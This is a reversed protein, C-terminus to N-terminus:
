RGPPQAFGYLGNEREWTRDRPARWPLIGLAILAPKYEYRLIVQAAAYRQPEFEVTHVRDRQNPGWGTGPNSEAVPERVPAPGDYGQAGVGNDSRRGSQPSAAAPPASKEMEKAEGAHWEDRDDIREDRGSERWRPTVGYLARQEDFATVRIWGLDGNAQGTREAYSRREDVFVFRSVNHLDKRWGKITADDHPDLVYMPEGSGGASRLGNIANLGDVALVFGVRRGTRNTVRIEYKAGQRAELYWRDTRNSAMFLPTNRGAVVVEVEIPGRAAEYSRDVVPTRAQAPAAVLTVALLAAATHRVTAVSM